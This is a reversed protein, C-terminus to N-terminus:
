LYGRESSRIAGGRSVNVEPDLNKVLSPSWNKMLPLGQGKGGRLALIRITDARWTKGILKGFIIGEDVGVLTLHVCSKHFLEAGVGNADIVDFLTVMAATHTGEVIGADIEEDIEVGEAGPDLLFGRM